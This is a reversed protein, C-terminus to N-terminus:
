YDGWLESTSDFSGFSPWTSTADHLGCTAPDRSKLAETLLRVQEAHQKAQEESRRQHDDLTKMMMEILDATTM